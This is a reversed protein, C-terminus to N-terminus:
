SRKKGGESNWLRRVEVYEDQYHDRGQPVITRTLFETVGEDFRGVDLKQDEVKVKHFAGFFDSHSLWHFLEHVVTGKEPTERTPNFYILREEKSGGLEKTTTFATVTVGEPLAHGSSILFVTAFSDPIRFVGPVAKPSRMLPELKLMRGKRGSYKTNISTMAEYITSLTEPNLEPMPKREKRVSRNNYSREIGVRV